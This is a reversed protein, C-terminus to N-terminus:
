QPIFLKRGVAINGPDQIKNLDIVTKASVGYAKCIIYLTEGPQVVHEIGRNSAPAAAPAPAAKATAATQKILKDLEGSLRTVMERKDAESKREIAACRTDLQGRLSDMERSIRALEMELNEMRGALRRQNELLMLQDQTMSAQNSMLQQQQQQGPFQLNECGSLGMLLCITILSKTTM